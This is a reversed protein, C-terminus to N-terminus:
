IMHLAANQDNWDIAVAFKPHFWTLRTQAIREVQVNEINNIVHLISAM